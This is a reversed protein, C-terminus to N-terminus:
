CISESDTATNWNGSPKPNACKIICCLVSMRELLYVMGQYEELPSWDYGREEVGNKHHRWRTDRYRGTGNVRTRRMDMALFGRGKWPRRGTQDQSRAGVSQEIRQTENQNVPTNNRDIAHCFALLLFLWAVAIVM